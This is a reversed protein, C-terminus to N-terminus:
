YLGDGHKLVVHKLLEAYRVSNHHANRSRNIPVAVDYFVNLGPHSIMLAALRRSILNVERLRAINTFYASLLRSHGRLESARAPDNKSLRAFASDVAEPLNDRWFKALQSVAARMSADGYERQMQLFASVENAQAAKRAQFFSAGAALAAFLASIAAVSLAVNSHAEPAAAILIEAM